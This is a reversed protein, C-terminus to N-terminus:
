RRSGPSSKASPEVTLTIVVTIPKRPDIDPLTCTPQEQEVQTCISSDGVTMDSLDVGDPLTIKIPQQVAPQGGTNTVLVSLEGTGGALLPTSITLQDLHLSPKALEIRFDDGAADTSSSSEAEQTSSSSRSTM